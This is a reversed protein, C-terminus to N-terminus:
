KRLKLLILIPNDTEKINNALKELKIKKEPYKPRSNKFNDSSIYTKLTLADVITIVTYDDKITMPLYNPGGDLDNIIGKNLDILARFDSKKSGIFGYFKVDEFLVLEYIFGYFIFDGFEFLNLPTIYNKFLYESDYQSRAKPTLLRKGVEIVLHPRFDLKKLVYITDSYVEKKFLQNNFRYFLNEHNVGYASNKPKIFPYKNPYNKIVVANTDMLIYSNEIKGMHNEYYSMINGDIFRFEIAAYLPIKYTRILKGNTSYVYFKKRWGSVFYVNHDESNIDVDHIVDFENPGRGEKGISAVFSGDDRFRFLTNYSRFLYGGDSAFIGYDGFNRTFGSSLSILCQDNTELPIYEIDIFGLDSLKIASLKPLEKLNYSIIKNEINKSEDQHKIALLTLIQLVILGSIFVNM